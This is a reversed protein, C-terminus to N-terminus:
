ELIVCLLCMILFELLLSTVHKRFFMFYLVCYSIIMSIWAWYLSPRHRMPVCLILGSAQTHVSSERTWFNRTVFVHWFIAFMRIGTHSVFLCNLRVLKLSSFVIELFLVCSSLMTSVLDLEFSTGEFSWGGSRLPLRLAVSGIGLSSLGLTVCGWYYTFM